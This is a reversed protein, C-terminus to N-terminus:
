VSAPALSACFCHFSDVLFPQQCPFALHSTLPMQSRIHHGSSRQWSERHLSLPLCALLLASISSVANVRSSRQFRLTYLLLAVACHLKVKITLVVLCPTSSPVEGVCLLPSTPIPQAITDQFAKGLVGKGLAGWLLLCTDLVTMHPVSPFNYQLGMSVTARSGWMCGACYCCYTRTGDCDDM